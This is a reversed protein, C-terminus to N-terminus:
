VTQEPLRANPGRKGHKSEALKELSKARYVDLLHRVQAKRAETMPPQRKGQGTKIPPYKDNLHKWADGRRADRLTDRAGQFGFREKVMDLVQSNAKDWHQPDRIFAVIEDTLTANYRDEGSSQEFTGHKHGHDTLNYGGDNVHAKLEAILRIEAQRLDEISAAEYIQHISFNEAGHKRMARYLPKDEDKRAACLHQRWRVKLPGVTLGVYVRDNVTNTIKYVLM